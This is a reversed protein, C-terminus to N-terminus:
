EANLRLPSRSPRAILVQQRLRGRPSTAAEVALADIASSQDPWAALRAEAAAALRAPAHAVLRALLALYRDPDDRVSAAAAPDLRGAEVAAAIISGAFTM